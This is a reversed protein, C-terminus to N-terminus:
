SNRIQRWKDGAYKTEERITPCLSGRLRPSLTFEMTRRKLKHPEIRCLLKNNLGHIFAKRRSSWVLPVPKSGHITQETILISGGASSSIIKMLSFRRYIYRRYGILSPESSSVRTARARTHTHVFIHM